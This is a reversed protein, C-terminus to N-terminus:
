EPTQVGTVTPQGYERKWIATAKAEASERDRAEVDICVYNIQQFFVEFKKMSAERM